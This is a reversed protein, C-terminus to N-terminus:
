YRRSFNNMEGLNKIKAITVTSKWALYMDEDRGRERWIHTPLYTNLLILVYKKYQNRKKNNIDHDNIM